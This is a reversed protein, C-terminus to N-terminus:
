DFVLFFGSLFTLFHLLFDDDDVSIIIIIIYLIGHM